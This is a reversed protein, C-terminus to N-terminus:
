CNINLKDFEKAKLQILENELLIVNSNILTKLSEFLAKLNMKIENTTNNWIPYKKDIKCVNPITISLKNNKVSKDDKGLFTALEDLLEYLRNCGHIFQDQEKKYVEMEKKATTLRNYISEDLKLEVDENDSSVNESDLLSLENNKLLYDWAEAKLKKLELDKERINANLTALHKNKLAQNESLIKSFTKELEAITRSFENLRGLECKKFMIDEM